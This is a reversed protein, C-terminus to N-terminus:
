YHNKFILFSVGFLGYTELWRMPEVHKVIENLLMLISTNTNVILTDMKFNYLDLYRKYYNSQSQVFNLAVKAGYEQTSDIFSILLNNVAILQYSWQQFQETVLDNSTANTLFNLCSQSPVIFRKLYKLKSIKIISLTEMKILSLTICVLHILDVYEVKQYIKEVLIWINEIFVNLIEKSILQNYTDHKMLNMNIVSLLSYITSKKVSLVTNEASFQHFVTLEEAFLQILGVLIDVIPTQMDDSMLNYFTDYVCQRYTISLTSFYIKINSLLSKLNEIDILDIVKSHNRFAIRLFSEFIKFYVVNNNPCEYFRFRVNVGKSLSNILFKLVHENFLKSYTCYINMLLKQIDQDIKLLKSDDIKEISEVFQQESFIELWKLYHFYDNDFLQSLIDRANKKDPQNLLGKEFELSLIDFIHLASSVYKLCIDKSEFLLKTLVTWFDDDYLHELLYAQENFWLSRLLRACLEYLLYRDIPNTFYQVISESKKCDRILIRQLFTILANKPNTVPLPNLMSPKQPLVGQDVIFMTQFLNNNKDYCENLFLLIECKLQVTEVKSLLLRYIHAVKNPKCSGFYKLVSGFKLDNLKRFFSLTLWRLNISVCHCTLSFLEFVIDRNDIEKSLMLLQQDLHIFHLGISNYQMITIFFEFFIEMLMIKPDSYRINNNNNDIFSLFDLNSQPTLIRVCIAFFNSEFINKIVYPKLSELQDDNETNRKYKVLLLHSFVIIIKKMLNSSYDIKINSLTLIKPIVTFFIFKIGNKIIHHAHLMRSQRKKMVNLLFTLYNLLLQSSFSCNSNSIDFDKTIYTDFLSLKPSLTDFDHVRSVYPILEILMDRNIADLFQQDLIARFLTDYVQEVIVPCQQLITVINPLILQRVIKYGNANSNEILCNLFKWQSVFLDDFDLLHTEIVKEFVVRFNELFLLDCM